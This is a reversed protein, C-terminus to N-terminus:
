GTQFWASKTQLYSQVSMTHKDSEDQAISMRNSAGVLLGNLRRETSPRSM